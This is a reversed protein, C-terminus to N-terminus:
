KTNVTIKADKLYSGMAKVVIEGATKTPEVVIMMKGNFARYYNSAFSTQDTADGNCLAKLMGSGEVDV